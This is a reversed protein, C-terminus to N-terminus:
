KDGEYLSKVLENYLDLDKTEETGDLVSSLIMQKKQLLNCLKEEITDPAVLYNVFTTKDQTIRHCRDEAQTCVGPSWPLEAITVTSAATLTVGVGLAHINGVILRTKPDKQFQEVASFRRRGTVSGDVLVKKYPIREEGDKNTGCLVEIARKHIAFLVLKEDTEELFRNVWGIVSRMKLRATLRLLYGVKVLEEAKMAARIKHTYNKKIWNIFDSSAERYEDYNSLECPVINRVKPPLDKLVDKKRRRIMGIDTLEKHLQGLNSSGRFDWGYHTWKPNCFRQAYSWFSNYKHPWLINLISFLESPRNVLPTGSLALVQNMEGALEKAARTRKASPTMLYQSEDFVITNFRGRLHNVWFRLIDYNIITLPTQISFDERLEPPTQGECISSRMDFKNKAEYQWILKLTAPVVILAPFWEPNRKLVALTEITKGLGMEIALLARGDLDEIRIIDKKQFDYLTLKGNIM